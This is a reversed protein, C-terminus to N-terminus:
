ALVEGSHYLENQDCACVACLSPKPDIYIGAWSLSGLAWSPILWWQVHMVLKRKKYKKGVVKTAFYQVLNSDCVGGV